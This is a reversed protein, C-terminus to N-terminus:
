LRPRPNLSPGPALARRSCEGCWPLRESFATKVQPTARPHSASAELRVDSNFGCSGCLLFISGVGVLTDESRWRLEKNCVIAGVGYAIFLIKFKKLFSSTRGERLSYGALQWGTEVGLISGAM